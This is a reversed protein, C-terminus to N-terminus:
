LFGRDKLGQVMKQQYHRHNIKMPIKVLWCKEVTTLAQALVKENKDILIDYNLFAAQDSALANYSSWVLHDFFVNYERSIVLRNLLAAKEPTIEEFTIEETECRFLILFADIPIKSNVVSGYFDKPSIRRRVFQKGRITAHLKFHLKDLLSRGSFIQKKTFADGQINYAYVKPYALNPSVEGENNIICIDDSVFAASHDKCLTIELSTKGVGGTGGFLLTKGSQTRVASAHILALNETTFAYPVLIHEHIWQGIAEKHSTFQMNMWKRLLRMTTSSKKITFAIRKVKTDEFYYRAIVAGMHYIFGDSTLQHISPNSSILGASDLEDVYDVVLDPIQNEITPYLSLEEELISSILADKAQIFIKKDFISYTKNM